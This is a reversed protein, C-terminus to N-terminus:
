WKKMSAMVVEYNKNIESQSMNNVQEQTFFGAANGTGKASGTSAAANTQNAKDTQQQGESQDLLYSKYAHLLPVGQMNAQFVEKPIDKSLDAMKGNKKFYWDDFENVQKQITEKKTRETTEKTEQDSKERETETKWKKLENVELLQQVIEDPVNSYQARIKDEIEKEELARKYETETKISKGNWEYNQEAVWSDRAEQRAKGTAEKIRQEAKAEVERRVAAFRANDDATQVPKNVSPTAPEAGANVPETNVQEIQPTVIEEQGADVSNLNEDM